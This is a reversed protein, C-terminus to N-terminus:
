TSGQLPRSRRHKCHPICGTGRRPRRPPPAPVPAAGYLHTPTIGPVREPDGHTTVVLLLPPTGSREARQGARQPPCGQDQLPPPVPAPRGLRPAHTHGTPPRSVLHARQPVGPVCRRIPPDAKHQRVDPQDPPPPHAGRGRRGGINHSQGSRLGQRASTSPPTDRGTPVHRGPVHGASPKFVPGPGHPLTDEIYLHVFLVNSVVWCVCAPLCCPRQLMVKVEMNGAPGFPTTISIRRANSPTPHM